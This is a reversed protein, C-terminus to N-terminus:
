ISFREIILVSIDKVGVNIKEKNRKEKCKICYILPLEEGFNLFCQSKECCLKYYM